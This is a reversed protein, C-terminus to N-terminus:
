SEISIRTVNHAGITQRSSFIVQNRSVDVQKILYIFLPSVYYVKLFTQDIYHVCSTDTVIQFLCVIFTAARKKFSKLEELLCALADLWVTHNM